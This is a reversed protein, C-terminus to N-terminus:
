ACAALLLLGAALALVVLGAAICQRVISRWTGRDCDGPHNPVPVCGTPGVYTTHRGGNRISQLKPARRLAAHIEAHTVIKPPADLAIRRM